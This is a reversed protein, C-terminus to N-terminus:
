RDGRAERDARAADDRWRLLEDWAQFKRVGPQCAMRALRQAWATLGFALRLNEPDLPTRPPSGPMDEVSRYKRVGV